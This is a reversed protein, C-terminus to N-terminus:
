LPMTQSLHPTSIVRALTRRSRIPWMVSAAGTLWIQYKLPIGLRMPKSSSIDGLDSSLTKYKAAYTTSSGPLVFRVYLCTILSLSSRSASSFYPLSANRTPMPASLTFSSSLATSRSAVLSCSFFSTLSKEPCFRRRAMLRSSTTSANRLDWLLGSHIIKSTTGTIGGSSRGITCSSPPRNAVLSKFSKYRRTILRLLRKFRKNSSLAGSM